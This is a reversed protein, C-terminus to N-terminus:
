FLDNQHQETLQLWQHHFLNFLADGEVLPICNPSKEEKEMLQKKLVKMKLKMLTTLHGTTTHIDDASRIIAQQIPTEKGNQQQVKKYKAFKELPPVILKSKNRKLPSNREELNLRKRKDVIEAM